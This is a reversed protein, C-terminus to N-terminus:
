TPLQEEASSVRGVDVLSFSVCQSLLATLGRWWSSRSWLRTYNYYQYVSRLLIICASANIANWSVGEQFLAGGM